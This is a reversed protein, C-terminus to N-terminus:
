RTGRRTRSTAPSADLRGTVPAPSPRIGAETAYPPSDHLGSHRGSGVGGQAQQDDVVADIVGFGDGAPQAICADGHTRQTGVRVVLEAAHDAALRRIDDDRRARRGGQWEGLDHLPDGVTTAVQRHDRQDVRQHLGVIHIRDLGAGAGNGQSMCRLLQQGAHALGPGVAICPAAQAPEFGAHALGLAAAIRQDVGRAIGDGIDVFAHVDPGVRGIQVHEAVLAELIDFPHRQEVHDRRLM